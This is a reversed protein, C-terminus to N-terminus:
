KLKELSYKLSLDGRVSSYLEPQYLNINKGVNVYMSIELSKGITGSLTQRLGIQDYWAKVSNYNISSSLSVTKLFTYTIGLDSLISSNLYILSATNSSSFNFNNNWYLLHRGITISQVNNLTFTKSVSENVDNFFLQNNQFAFNLYNRYYLSSIRKNLNLELSVRDIQSVPIRTTEDVKTSVAPQYRFALFNAKSFKWKVDYVFYSNNLKSKGVISYDYQRLSTRFSLQLKKKFIQKKFIANLEKGNNLYSSAPNNYGNSVSIANINYYLGKEQLDAQYAFSLAMNSLINGNKLLGQLAKSPSSNYSTGTASLENSYQTSSRSVESSIFSNNGLNWKNSITGVMLSRASSYSQYLNNLSNSQSFALLSVSRSTGKLDDKGFSIAKINNNNSNIHDTFPLDNLSTVTNQKGTFVSFLKNNKLFESSINKSILDNISLKGTTLANQGINLKTVNLLFKQIKNLELNELAMRKINEPDNVAQKINESTLNKFAAIKDILGNDKWRKKHETVKSLVAELGKYKEIRMRLSDYVSKDIPLGNNIKNQLQELLNKDSKNKQVEKESLIKKSLSPIDTQFINQSNVIDSIESSKLSIYKRTILDVDNKLSQIAQDKVTKLLDIQNELLKEANFRGKLKEKLSSIYQEKSFNVRFNNFANIGPLNPDSLRQSNFQLPIAAVTINADLNYISNFNNYAPASISPSVNTIFDAKINSISVVSKGTIGAEINKFISKPENNIVGAYNKLQKITSGAFKKGGNGLASKIMSKTATLSDENKHKYSIAPVSKIVRPSEGKVLTDSLSNNQSYVDIISLTLFITVFIKFHM